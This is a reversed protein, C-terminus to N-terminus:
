DGGAEDDKKEGIVEPEAGTAAPAEEVVVDGEEQKEVCQVVALNPEVLLKAGEPLELDGVTITEGVQLEHLRVEIKDTMSRPPIEIQMEKMSQEVVGGMKTGPAEGRLELSVTTEIMEGAQVRTFDVHMISNGYLDWQVDRIFADGDVGGGLSVIRDGSHVIKNIEDSSVSLSISGGGHGYIVAPTKGAARLKKIKHRGTEQRVDVNLVQSNAM